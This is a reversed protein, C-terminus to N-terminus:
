NNDNMRCFSELPIKFLEYAQKGDCNSIVFSTKSLLLLFEM